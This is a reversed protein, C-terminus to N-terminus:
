TAKFIPQTPVPNGHKAKPVPKMPRNFPRPAAEDFEDYEDSEDHELLEGLEGFGFNNFM